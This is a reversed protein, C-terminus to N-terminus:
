NKGFDPRKSLIFSVLSTELEPFLVMPKNAIKNEYFYRTNVFVESWIKLMSTFSIDIEINLANGLNTIDRMDRKKLLEDYIDIIFIKTSEELEGFISELNHSFKGSGKEISYITKLYLELSLAALVQSPFLAKLDDQGLKVSQNLLFAADSYIKAAQAIEKIKDNAM